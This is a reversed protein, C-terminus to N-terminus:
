GVAKYLGYMVLSLGIGTLGYLPIDMSMDCHFCAVSGFFGLVLMIAGATMWQAGERMTAPMGGTLQPAQSQPNEM